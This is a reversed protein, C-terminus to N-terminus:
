KMGRLLSLEMSELGFWSTKEGILMLMKHFFKTDIDGKKLWVERSKQRWSIEELLDIELAREKAEERLGM